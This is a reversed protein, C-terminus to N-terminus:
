RRGADSAGHRLAELRAAGDPGENLAAVCARAAAIEGTLREMDAAFDAGDFGSYLRSLDWNM